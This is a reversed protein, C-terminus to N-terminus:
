SQPGTSSVRQHDYTRIQLGSPSSQTDCANLWLQLASCSVDTDSPAAGKYPSGPSYEGVHQWGLKAVSKGCSCSKASSDCAWGHSYSSTKSDGHWFSKCRPSLGRRSDPCHTKPVKEPCSFCTERTCHLPDKSQQSIGHSYQEIKM